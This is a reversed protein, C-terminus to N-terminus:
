GHFDEQATKTQQDDHYQDPNWEGTRGVTLGGAELKSDLQLIARANDALALFIMKLEV